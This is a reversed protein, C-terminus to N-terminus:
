DLEIVTDPQSLPMRNALQLRAEAKLRRNQENAIMQQQPTM